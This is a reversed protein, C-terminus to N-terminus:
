KAAKRKKRADRLPFEHRKGNTREYYLASMDCEVLAGLLKAVTGGALQLLREYAGPWLVVYVVDRGTHIELTSGGAGYASIKAVTYAKLAAM